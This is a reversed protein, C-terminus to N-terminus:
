FGVEIKGNVATWSDRNERDEPIESADIVTVNQAEAPIDKELVLQIVDEQSKDHFCAYAPSVIFARGAPVVIPEEPDGTILDHPLTYIIVKM